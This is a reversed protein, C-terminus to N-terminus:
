EWYHAHVPRPLGAQTDTGTELDQAQKMCVSLDAIGAQLGGCHM